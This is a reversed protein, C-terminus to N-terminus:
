PKLVRYAEQVHVIQNISDHLAHHKVTNDVASKPKGGDFALDYLTRTDRCNYFMWPEKTGIAKAAAAIMPQDFTAGHGWVYIPGKGLVDKQKWYFDKLERLAIQISVPKPTSLADRAEKGQGMWWFITEEEVTLGAKLCSNISVNRYFMPLDEPLDISYDEKPDFFAAGISAIVSGPTSGMTELDIMLHNRM